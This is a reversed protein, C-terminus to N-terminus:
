GLEELIKHISRRPYAGHLWRQFKALARIADALHKPVDARLHKEVDVWLAIKRGFETGGRRARWFNTEYIPCSAKVYHRAVSYSLGNVQGGGIKFNKMWVSTISGENARPRNFHKALREHSVLGASKACFILQEPTWREQRLKFGYRRYYREVISRVSVNPFRKQTRAKGHKEYYRCVQEIVKPKYALANLSVGNRKAWRVLTPKSVGVDKALDHVYMTGALKKVIRVQERSLRAPPVRLFALRCPNCWRANFHASHKPRKKCNGCLARKEM